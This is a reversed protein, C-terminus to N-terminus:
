FSNFTPRWQVLCSATGSDDNGGFSIGASGPNLRVNSLRTHRSLGGALSAGDSRLVTKNRSDITVSEDYALDAKLEIVWGPGEVYPNTIPGTITIRVPAPAEGGVEPISGSRRGGDVTTLPSQLPSKLVGGGGTPVLGITLGHAQDAYYFPDATLFEATVPIIGQEIGATTNSAFKRPRGWVLRTEGGQRYRLYSETGPQGGIAHQRWRTSLDGLTAKADKASRRNVILDFVWSPGSLLDRGFLRDHGVPNLSDQAQIGAANIEYDQVFVPRRDGMIFGDLDFEGDELPEAM